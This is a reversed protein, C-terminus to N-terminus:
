KVRVVVVADGRSERGAGAVLLWCLIISGNRFMGRGQKTRRAVWVWVWVRGWDGSGLEWRDKGNRNGIVGRLRQLHTEAIM